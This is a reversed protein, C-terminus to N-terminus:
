RLALAVATDYKAKALQYDYTAAIYDNKASLVALRADALDTSTIMNAEYMLESLRIMEEAEEVGKQLVRIREVADKIASYNQRVDLELLARVQNFQTEMKALNISAQELTLAPTYDNDALEVNKRAVDIAIQLQKIEDRNTLAFALDAYLDGDFPQYDLEYSQAYVLGDLPVGLTQRFKMQSLELGHQAQSLGAQANLVSRTAQIVDLRTVTGVALKKEAIDLHRKASEVAEAAIAVMNEMKLVSYFDTKVTLGLKDKGMLYNQQAMDLGAQAQLLMVPSPRMIMAAEAQKYQLQAEKLALYTLHLELSNEEAMSTAEKVTLYMENGAQASGALLMLLLIGWVLRNQCM